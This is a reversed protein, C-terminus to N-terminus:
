LAIHFSLGKIQKLQAKDYFRYIKNWLNTPQKGIVSLVDSVSKLAPIRPLYLGFWADFEM